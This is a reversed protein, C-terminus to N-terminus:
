CIFIRLLRLLQRKWVPLAAATERELTELRDWAAAREDGTLTHQSFRAKRALDELAEDEGCGWATLRRYRCYASIVSRNHDEDERARRRIALAISYLAALAAPIALVALTRRLWTLDVPQPEASPVAADGSGGPGEGPDEEPRQEPPDGDPQRPQQATQPTQPPQSVADEPPGAPSDGGGPTMEVPYWGYGDLYIEAWAHASSDLVTAQGASDLRALYGSAYRAPIGQMRLLLVGTTAFHVCYGRGMDLFREVFDDGPDMAPVSTDYAARGALYRATRGAAAVPERFAAPLRSDPEEALARLGELLPQLAAQTRAPVSLCTEYVYSRYDAQAEALLGELPTFGSEPGGPRYPLAYQRGVRAPPNEELRYPTFLYGGGSLLSVTMTSVPTDPATRAPFVLPAPDSLGASEPPTFGPYPEAAEWSAGTYEAATGGLLLVAGEPDPQDTRLTMVPRRAYSRPGASLLDVRDAEVAVGSGGGLGSSGSAAGSGTWSGGPDLVLNGIGLDWGPASDLRDAAASVLRDRASTAWGPRLYGEQPLVASLLALFSGMAALAGLQARWLRAPDGRDLLATLLLAGWGAASLLMAPWAPLIGEMIPLLVPLTVVMACLYWCRARVVLWGLLLALAGATLVLLPLAAERNGASRLASVAPELLREWLPRRALVLAALLGMAAWGGHRSLYLAASLVSFLACLTLLAGRSYAFAHASLFAELGGFLLAFLVLTDSLAMLLSDALANKNKM